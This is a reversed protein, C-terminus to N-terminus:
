PKARRVEMLLKAVTMVGARAHLDNADEGPQDSMCWPLGTAQAAKEGTLSVDNDAFVYRTGTMGAAVHIMNSASFCVVVAANLRLLRLAVDISLGTSYGECLISEVARQPGIRLVAGKARMGPLMKKAWENDILRITQTSLLANDRVDRMPIILEGDTGVLAQEEPFGKSKLYPHADKTASAILLGAKKAAMAYGRQKEHEAARRRLAWDRKESENWPKAYPDNWWQIPEGTEWNQVWGRLGDFFYAGNTSAPHLTTPCRHIKDGIRLQHIEVGHTRAFLLFDM